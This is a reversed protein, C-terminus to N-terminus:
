KQGGELETSNAVRLFAKYIIFLLEQNETKPELKTEM